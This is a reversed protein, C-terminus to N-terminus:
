GRSMILGKLHECTTEWLRKNIKHTKSDYANKMPAGCLPCLPHNARLRLVGIEMEKEFIKYNM